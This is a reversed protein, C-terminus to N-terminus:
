ITFESSLSSGDEPDGNSYCGSGHHMWSICNMNLNVTLSNRRVCFNIIVEYVRTYVVPIKSPNMDDGEDPFSNFFM